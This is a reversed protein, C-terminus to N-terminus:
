IIVVTTCNKEDLLQKLPTGIFCSNVSKTLVIEGEVPLCSPYFEFGKSNPHLKSKANTSSHRVHVIQENTKRWTAIIQSSIEEANKNNRNGGWFAEDLFGQQLDICILVPKQSRLNM